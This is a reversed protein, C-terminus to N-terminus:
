LSLIQPLIDCRAEVGLSAVLDKEMFRPKDLAFAGEFLMVPNTSVSWGEEERRVQINAYPDYWRCRHPWVNGEDVTLIKLRRAVFASALAGTGCALTERNIGREFCRYELVGSQNLLAGGLIIYSLQSVTSFALRAKLNDQALALLSAVVITVSAAVLALQDAGIERM